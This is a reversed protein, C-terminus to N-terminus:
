KVVINVIRGPVYIEKVINGTLKDGLAEKAAAIVTDKDMFMGNMYFLGLANMARADGNNAAADKIVEIAQQESMGYELGKLTSLAHSVDSDTVSAYMGNLLVSMFILIFASVKTKTKKMNSMTKM